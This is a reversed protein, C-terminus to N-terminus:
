VNSLLTCPYFFYKRFNRIPLVVISSLKIRKPMSSAPRFKAQSQISGIFTSLSYTHKLAAHKSKILMPSGLKGLGSPHSPTTYVIVNQNQKVNLLTLEDPAVWINLVDVILTLLRGVYRDTFPIRFGSVLQDISSVAVCM